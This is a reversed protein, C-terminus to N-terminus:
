EFPNYETYKNPIAAQQLPQSATVTTATDGPPRSGKAQSAVPADAFSHSSQIAYESDPVAGRSINISVSDQRVAQKYQQQNFSPPVYTAAPEPSTTASSSATGQKLKTKDGNTALDSEQVTEQRQLFKPLEEHGMRMGCFGLLTYVSGIIILAIGLGLAYWADGLALGGVTHCQLSAIHPQPALTHPM